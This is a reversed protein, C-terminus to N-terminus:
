AKGSSPQWRAIVFLSLGLLAALIAAFVALDARGPSTVTGDIRLLANVTDDAVPQTATCRSTWVLDAQLIRGAVFIQEGVRLLLGDDEDIIPYQVRVRSPLEGRFGHRVDMEVVRYGDHTTGVVSRVTGVFLADWSSAEALDGSVAQLALQPHTRGVTVGAVACEVAANAPM